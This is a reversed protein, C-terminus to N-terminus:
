MVEVSRALGAKTLEGLFAEVDVSAESAEVVFREVVERTLDDITRTGDLRDWLFEGVGHLVYVCDLDALRKRIPVLLAEGAIRRTVVDEDRSFRASRTTVTEM